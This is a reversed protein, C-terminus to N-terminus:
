PESGQAGAEEEVEGRQRGGWDLAGDRWLYALAALLVGVFVAVEVFGRWGLERAVVAWAILFVTELDFIVFLLAVLYFQMTVRTRGPGTTLMGSEYPQVTGPQLRRREGILQPLAIMAAVLAIALLAYLALPWLHM